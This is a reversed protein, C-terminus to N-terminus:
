DCFNQLRQIYDRGSSSWGCLSFTRGLIQNLDEKKCIIEMVKQRTGPPCLCSIARGKGVYFKHKTKLSNDFEVQANLSFIGLYDISEKYTINELSNIMKATRQQVRGTHGCREYHLAWFQVCNKMRPRVPASCAQM